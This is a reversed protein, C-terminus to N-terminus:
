IRIGIVLIDDTQEEDKEGRWREIEGYLIDGQEHMPYDSIKMLTEKLRGSQYRRHNSGGLQDAYGDTCLYIVDGHCLQLRESTFEYDAKGSHEVINGPKFEIFNSGTIHYLPNGVGAWVLINKKLDISCLAIDMDDEVDSMYSGKRLFGHMRSYLHRLVEAPETLRLENVAQDLIGYGITSLMAGPIGHGTCDAAAFLIKHDTRSFFYFDGSVIDKPKYLVFSDPFCERIFLSDPLFAKQIHRAYNYSGEIERIAEGIKKNRKEVIVKVESPLRASNKMVEDLERTEGLIRHISSLPKIAYPLRSIKEPNVPFAEYDIDQLLAPILRVLERDKEKETEPLDEYPVISPHLKNSDDRIKGYHWGGLIKDWCWRIHEVRSMNEIEQDSLHLVSTKYGKRVPRIRFGISLLKAPIHYANDLNSRRIEEPLTDFDDSEQDAPGGHKHTWAIYTSREPSREQKRLQYLYRSHIARAMKYVLLEDIETVEDPRIIEFGEERLGLPMLHNLEIYFRKEAEPLKRFNGGNGRNGGHCYMSYDYEALKELDEYPILCTRCFDKFPRIRLQVSDLKAPIRDTYAYWESKNKESLSSFEKSLDYPSIFFNQM